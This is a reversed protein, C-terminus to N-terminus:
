DMEKEEALWNPIEVELEDGEEAAGIWKIQSKPLWFKEGDYLVYIAKETECIFEVTYPKKTYKTSM